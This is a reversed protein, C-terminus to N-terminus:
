AVLRSACSEAKRLKSQTCAAPVPVMWVGAPEVLSLSIRQWGWGLPLRFSWNRMHFAWSLALFSIWGGDQAVSKYALWDALGLIKWHILRLPTDQSNM